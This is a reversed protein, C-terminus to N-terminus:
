EKYLFQIYVVGKEKCWAAESLGSFHWEQLMEKWRNAKTLDPAPM